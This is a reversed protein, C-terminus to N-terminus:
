PPQLRLGPSGCWYIVMWVPLCSFLHMLPSLDTRLMQTLRLVFNALITGCTISSLVFITWGAESPCDTCFQGSSSAAAASYLAEIGISTIGLAAAATRLLPPRCGLRQRFLGAFLAALLVGVVGAAASLEFYVPTLFWPASSSPCLTNDIAVAYSTGSGHFMLETNKVGSMDWCLVQNFATADYFMYSMDTVRSVDWATLTHNFASANYFMYGMDTVRSVEWAGTDGNFTSETSCYEYILRNM